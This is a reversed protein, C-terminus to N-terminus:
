TTGSSEQTIQQEFDRLYGNVDGLDVYGVLAGSTKNFLLGEKVYM